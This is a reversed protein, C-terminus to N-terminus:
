PCSLQPTQNDQCLDPCPLLYLTWNTSSLEECTEHPAPVVSLPWECCSLQSPPFHLGDPCPVPPSVQCLSPPLQMQLLEDAPLPQSTKKLSPSTLTFQLLLVLLLGMLPSSVPGPPVATRSTRVSGLCLCSM